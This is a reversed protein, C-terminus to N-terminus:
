SVLPHNPTPNDMENDPLKPPRLEGYALNMLLNALSYDELQMKKKKAKSIM